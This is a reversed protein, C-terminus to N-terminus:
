RTMRDPQPLSFSVTKGSHPEPFSIGVAHLQLPVDIPASATGNWAPNYLEDGIIPFGEFSLHSRIQHRYGRVITCTIGVVPIEEQGRDDCVTALYAGTIVTTYEQGAEDYGRMGPFLPRVERRGPGFARFRSEIGHPYLGDGPLTGGSNPSCFAFYRKEIMGRYQANWLADYCAQTRAILVLGETATDLRHILGCEIPKIGRVGAADPYEALTWALLTDREGDGLPASPMGHPKCVLVWEATEHVVFPEKM